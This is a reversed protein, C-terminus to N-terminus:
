FYDRFLPTELPKAAVTTFAHMPHILCLRCRKYNGIDNKFNLVNWTALLDM